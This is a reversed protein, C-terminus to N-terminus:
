ARRQGGVPRFSGACAPAAHAVELLGPDGVRRYMADAAANDSVRIMVALLARTRPDLHGRVRAIRRLEAVLLMAKSLSASPFRWTRHHGV